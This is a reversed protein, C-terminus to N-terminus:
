DNIRFFCLEKKLMGCDRFILLAELFFTDWPPNSTSKYSKWKNGSFFIFFMPKSIYCRELFILWSMFEDVKWGDMMSYASAWRIGFNRWCAGVKWFCVWSDWAEKWFGGVLFRCFVVEAHDFKVDGRGPFGAWIEVFHSCSIRGNGYGYVM